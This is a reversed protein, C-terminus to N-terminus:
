SGDDEVEELLEEAQQKLEEDEGEAAPAAFAAAMDLLFTEKAPEMLHGRDFIESRDAVAKAVSLFFPAAAVEIPTNQYAGRAKAINEDAGAVAAATQLINRQLTQSEASGAQSPNPAVGESVSILIPSPAGSGAPLPFDISMAAASGIQTKWTGLGEALEITHRRADRQYQQVSNMFQAASAENGKAGDEYAEALEAYGAAM